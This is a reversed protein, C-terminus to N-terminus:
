ESLTDIHGLGVSSGGGITANADRRSDGRQANSVRNIDYDYKELADLAAKRPYGMGTLRKLIPDDHETGPTVANGHQPKPQSTSPAVSSAALGVSSWPDSSTDAPKSNDLGAFISDWDHQATVQPGREDNSGNATYNLAHAAPKAPQFGGASSDQATLSRSQAVPTQQSSVVTNTMSAAPSDFVPNFEATEARDFGFDIDTNGSKDAEKAEALDAFDDFEDLIDTNTSTQDIDPAVRTDAISSM